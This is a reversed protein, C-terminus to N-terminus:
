VVNTSATVKGTDPDVTFTLDGASTGNLKIRDSLSEGQTNDYYMNGSDEVVLQGKKFPVNSQNESEAVSLKSGTSIADAM